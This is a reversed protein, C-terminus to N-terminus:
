SWLAPRAPAVPDGTEADIVELFFLDSFAVMGGAVGDREVSTM